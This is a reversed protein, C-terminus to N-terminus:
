LLLGLETFRDDASIYDIQDFEALTVLLNKFQYSPMAILKCLLDGLEQEDLFDNEHKNFYDSIGAIFLHQQSDPQVQLYDVLFNLEYSNLM